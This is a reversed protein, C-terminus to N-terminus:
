RATSRSKKLIKAVHGPVTLAEERSMYGIHCDELKLGIEASLARYAENRTMGQFQWLPDFARHALIRADHTAQDVLPMGSWSHLNCARCDDRVKGLSFTRVARQHCAPCIVFGDPNVGM